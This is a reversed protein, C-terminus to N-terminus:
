DIKGGKDVISVVGISSRTFENIIKDERIVRGVRRLMEMGAVSVSQGIKMDVAWCESGNM